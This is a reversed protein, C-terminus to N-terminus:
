RRIKREISNATEQMKQHQPTTRRVKRCQRHSLVQMPAVRTNSLRNVSMGNRVAISRAIPSALQKGGEYLCFGRVRWSENFEGGM